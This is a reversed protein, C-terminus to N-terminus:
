VKSSEGDEEGTFEVYGRSTVSRSGIAITEVDSIEGVIEFDM